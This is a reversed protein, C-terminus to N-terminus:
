KYRYTSTAISTPHRDAHKLLDHVLRDADDHHHSLRDHAFLVQHTREPRGHLQQQAVITLTTTTQPDTTTRTHSKVRNRHASNRLARTGLIEDLQLITNRSRSVEYRL